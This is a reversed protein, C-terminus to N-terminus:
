DISIIGDEVLARFNWMGRGEAKYNWYAHGYARKYIGQQVSAHNRLMTDHQGSPVADFLHQPLVTSWEGIIVPQFLQLFWLQLRRWRKAYRLYHDIGQNAGISFAYLHMDLAVPYRRRSWLAGTFLMPHFGDHFVTYTGPRM